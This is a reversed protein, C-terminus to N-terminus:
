IRHDANYSEYFAWLSFRVRRINYTIPSSAFEVKVGRLDENETFLTKIIALKGGQGEIIKALGGLYIDGKGRSVLLLHRSVVCLRSCSRTHWAELERRQEMGSALPVSDLHPPPFSLAALLCLNGVQAYKVSHSATFSVKFRHSWYMYSALLLYFQGCLERLAVRHVPNIHPHQAKLSQLAAFLVKDYKLLVSAMLSGSARSSTHFLLSLHDLVTILVRCQADYDQVSEGRMAAYHNEAIHLTCTLWEKSDTFRKKDRQFLCHALAKEVEGSSNYHNVLHIHAAVDDKCRSLQQEALKTALDPDSGGEISCIKETLSLVLSHVNSYAEIRELSTKLAEPAPNEIKCYLRAVSIAVERQDERLRLSRNYHVIAKELLGERECAQGMLKHARFDKEQVSLYDQLYRIADQYKKVEVCLRAFEYGHHAREQASSLRKQIGAIHKEVQEKSLGM